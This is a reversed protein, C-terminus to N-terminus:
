RGPTHLLSTVSFGVLNDEVVALFKIVITQVARFIRLIQFRLGRTWSLALSSPLCVFSKQSFEYLAANGLTLTAFQQLPKGLALLDDVLDFPAILQNGLCRFSLEVVRSTEVNVQDFLIYNRRWAELAVALSSKADLG